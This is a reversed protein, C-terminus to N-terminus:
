AVCRLVVLIRREKRMAREDLTASRNETFGLQCEMLGYVRTRLSLCLLRAMSFNVAALDLTCRRTLWGRQPM